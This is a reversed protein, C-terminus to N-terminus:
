AAAGKKEKAVFTAISRDCGEGTCKGHKLIAGNKMTREGEVQFQKKGKCGLCYGELVEPEPEVPQQMPIQALPGTSHPATKLREANLERVINIGNHIDM